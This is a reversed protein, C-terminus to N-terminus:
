KKREFSSEVAKKLDRASKEIKKKLDLGAAEGAKKWEGLHAKLERQKKELALIGRDYDKRADLRVERARAKLEMLRAKAHDIQIGIREQFEDTKKLKAMSERRDGDSLWSIHWSMPGLEVLPAQGRRAAGRSDKVARGPPRINKEFFDIKNLSAPGGHGASFARTREDKDGKKAKSNLRREEGLDTKGRHEAVM